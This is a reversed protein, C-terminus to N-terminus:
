TAGSNEQRSYFMNCYGGRLLDALIQCGDHRDKEQISCNSKDSVPKVTDCKQIKVWRDSIQIYMGSQHHSQSKAFLLIKKFHKKTSPYTHIILKKM